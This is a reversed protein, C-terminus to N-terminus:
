IGPIQVVYFCLVCYFVCLYGIHYGINGVIDACTRVSPRITFITNLHKFYFKSLKELM